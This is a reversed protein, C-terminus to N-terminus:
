NKFKVSGKLALDAMSNAKIGNASVTYLNDGIYIIRDVYLQRDGDYLGSVKLFEPTEHSIVGKKIFGKNLDISYVYAGQGKYIGYAQPDNKDAPSKEFLSVPFALINKEKSFLLAKHNRLLESDTGRDGITEVFLEKPNTPDTVNFLSMKMGQYLALDGYVVTDKGFGILHNEDYPHLYDSYGPIKLAGLIKPAQPNSLDIAFLPDVKRFTVMYARKGMFRVSYIKETPAINTVKGITKLNKDLVFLNNSQQGSANSGTTAIRFNGDYEDMSFQNLVFGDVDGRSVYSVAESGEQLLKFKFVTTSPEHYVKKMFSKPAIDIMPEDAPAPQVTFRPNYSYNAAAIYMNDQSMYLNMGTGFFTTTKAPDNDKSLDFRMIVTYNSDVYGPCYYIDKYDIQKYDNGKVSDSYSPTQINNKDRYLSYFSVNSLLYVTNGIKRSNMYNGDANLERVKKVNQKDTIDYVYVTTKPINTYPHSQGIVTLRTKDTYIESPYFNDGPFHITYEAKMAEAPVAKVVSLKNERLYYIYEGDTKIVDGEDVGQVQINTKSFDESKRDSENVAGSEQSATAAPAANSSLPPSFSAGSDAAPMSDSLDKFLFRFEESENSERVLDGAIKLLNEKSGIVPLGQLETFYKEYDANIEFEKGLSIFSNMRSFQRSFAVKFAEGTIYVRGNKIITKDKLTVTQKNVTIQNKDVPITVSSSDNKELVVAQNKEDWSIDTNFYKAVFRLPLYITGDQEFPAAEYDKEDIYVLTEDVFAKGSNLRLLVQKPLDGAVVANEEATATKPYCYTIFVAALMLLLIIYKKM